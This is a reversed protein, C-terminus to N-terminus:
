PEVMVWKVKFVFRKLSLPARSWQGGHMASDMEECVQCDNGKMQGMRGQGSTRTVARLEVSGRSLALIQPM